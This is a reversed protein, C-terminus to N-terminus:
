FMTFYNAAMEVADDGEQVPRDRWRWFRNWQAEEYLWLDQENGPADESPRPGPNVLKTYVGEDNWWHVVKFRRAMARYRADTYNLYEDGTRNRRWWHSPHRNSAFLMTKALLCAMGGKTEVQWPGMNTTNNFQEISGYTDGKFEDMVVVEEGKYGDWWKHSCDKIYKQGLGERRIRQNIRTTKGIATPGWYLELHRQQQGTTEEGRDERANQEDWFADDEEQARALQWMALLNLGHKGFRAAHGPMEEIVKTTIGKQELVMEAFRDVDCRKGQGAKKCEDEDCKVYWPGEIRSEQKTCYKFNAKKGSKAHETHMRLPAMMTHFGTTYMRKKTELYGQFHKTGDAGVELQFVGLRVEEKGELLEALDDGDMYPNNWTFCWRQAYKGRGKPQEEMTIDEFSPHEALRKKAVPPAGIVRSRYKRPKAPPMGDLDEDEDMLTAKNREKRREKRYALLEAKKRMFEEHDQGLKPRYFGEKSTGVVCDEDEIVDTDDNIIVDTDENAFDEILKQKHAEIDAFMRAYYDDKAGIPLPTPSLRLDPIILNADDKTTTKVQRKRNKDQSMAQELTVSYLQTTTHTKTNVIRYSIKTPYKDQYDPIHGSGSWIGNEGGVIVRHQVKEVM